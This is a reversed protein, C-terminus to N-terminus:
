RRRTRRGPARADLGALARESAEAHRTLLAAFELQMRIKERMWSALAARDLRAPDHPAAPLERMAKMAAAARTAADAMARYARAVRLMAARERRSPPSGSGVWAAHADMNGAVHRMLAGWREPVEASAAM